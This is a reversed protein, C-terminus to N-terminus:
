ILWDLVEVVIDILGVSLWDLVVCNAQMLLCFNGLECPDLGSGPSPLPSDPYDIGNPVPSESQDQELYREFM